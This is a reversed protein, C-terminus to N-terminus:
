SRRALTRVVADVLGSALLDQHNTFVEFNSKGEDAAVAFERSPGNPDAIATVQAGAVHHLNWLHEVGMMGTGIIGYRISDSSTGVM